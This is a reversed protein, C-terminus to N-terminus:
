PLVEGRKQLRTKSNHERASGLVADLFFVFVASVCSRVLSKFVGRGPDKACASVLRKKLLDCRAVTSAPSPHPPPPPAKRM